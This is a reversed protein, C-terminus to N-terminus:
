FQLLFRPYPVELMELYDAVLQSVMGNVIPKMLM